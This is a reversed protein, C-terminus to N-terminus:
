VKVSSSDEGKIKGGYAFIIRVYHLVCTVVICVIDTPQERFQEWGSHTSAEAQKPTATRASLHFMLLTYVSCHYTNRVVRLPSLILM